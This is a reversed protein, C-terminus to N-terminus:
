RQAKVSKQGFRIRKGDIDIEFYYELFICLGFIDVFPFTCCTCGYNSQELEKKVRSM